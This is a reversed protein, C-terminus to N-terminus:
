ARSYKNRVSPLHHNSPLTGIVPGTATHKSGHLTDQVYINTERNYMM